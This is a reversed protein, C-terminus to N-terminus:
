LRRVRITTRRRSLEAPDNPYDEGIGNRPKREKQRKTASYNCSYELRGISHVSVALHALTSSASALRLNCRRGISQDQPFLIHGGSVRRLDIASSESRRAPIARRDHFRCRADRHDPDEELSCWANLM